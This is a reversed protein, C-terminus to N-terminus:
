EGFRWISLARAPVIVGEMDYSPAGPPSPPFSYSVMYGKLERGGSM